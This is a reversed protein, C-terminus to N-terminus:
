RASDGRAAIGPVTVPLRGPAPAGALVAAVAAETAAGDRYVCVYTGVDPFEAILYPSGLSVAVVHEARDVCALVPDFAPPLGIAGDYTRVGIHIAVVVQRARRAREAAGAIEEPPSGPHLRVQEVAYGRQRLSAALPLGRDSEEPLLTVLLVGGADLPLLGRVDRVTTVGREALTEALAVHEPHAVVERWDGREPLKGGLLGLEAKTRLLRRVADEFRGRDIVGSRVAAVVADRAARPDPPMLLLDAGAALARVAAQEPTFGAQVGGMDLADTVILGDFGMRGRLEGTLITPSLTAPVSADEGLGPVSLHGTMIAGVGADITARFPALEVVELRARDGPVTPLVAHSDSTVDGHGPFHKATAIMGADQMGEVFAAALEAVLEPDEGFSRMNIIPNLPNVNVDVVPAFAMHFGLARGELATVRGMARALEPDGAAGVLMNCGLTTGGDLRYGIGAEFDAAVLLPVEACAQLEEVLAQADGAQGLSLIVGGLCGEEILAKLESRKDQGPEPTSLTWAMFLQGAKQELTMAALQDDVDPIPMACASLCGLIAASRLWTM